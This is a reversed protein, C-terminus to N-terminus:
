SYKINPNRGGLLASATSKPAAHPSAVTGQTGVGRNILERLEDQNSTYGMAMDQAIEGRLVLDSLSQNFTQM